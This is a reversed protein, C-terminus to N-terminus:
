GKQRALEMIFEWEAKSIKSVSLRSQKLGQMDKLTDEKHLQLEKLPVLKPFKEHFAVHVHFWKPKEPDSKPDYYPHKSDFASETLSDSQCLDEALTNLMSDPSSEQVIEMVGAVGPVKCNSHYFFALDGIKMAMMNKKAVHNRVGEWPEPESTAQLDEISFKVDIGKEIRSEPEAKM